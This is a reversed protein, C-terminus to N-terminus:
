CERPAQIMRTDEGQSARVEKNGGVVFREETNKIVSVIPANEIWQNLVKFFPGQGPVETNAM